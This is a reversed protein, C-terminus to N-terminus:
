GLVEHAALPLLNLPVVDPCGDGATLPTWGLVPPCVNTHAERASVRSATHFTARQCTRARGLAVNSPSGSPAFSGGGSSGSRRSSVASNGTASASPPMITTRWTRLFPSGQPDRRSPGVNRRRQGLAEQPARVFEAPLELSPAGRVLFSLADYRSPMVRGLAHSPCPPPFWGVSKVLYKPSCPGVLKRAFFAADIHALPPAM